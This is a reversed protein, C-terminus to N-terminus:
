VHKHAAKSKYPQIQRTLHKTTTTLHILSPQFHTSTLNRGHKLKTIRITTNFKSENKGYFTFTQPQYFTISRRFKALGKVRTLPRICINAYSHNAQQKRKYENFSSPDFDIFKCGQSSSYIQSSVVRNSEMLAVRQM